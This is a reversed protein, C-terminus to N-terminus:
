QYARHHHAGFRHHGRMTQLSHQQNLLAAEVMKELQNSAQARASCVVIPQLGATLHKQTIALIHNWTKRSSVSTGGFKTVIQRM